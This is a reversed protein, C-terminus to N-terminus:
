RVYFEKMDDLRLLMPAGGGAAGTDIDIWTETKFARDPNGGLMETPTHGFVTFIDDYYRDAASPRNWLVDGTTYDEIDKNAEFNGIGAHTLLFDRDDISITEFMPAESLYDYIDQVADPDQRHLRRLSDLTPRAGNFIWDMMTNMRDGTLSDINEGTVEDFVFRCDLMMEEHNGLILSVNPQLMMWRLMEVGGDGNRDIVDGLVFLFDEDSFGAKKLLDIFDKLPYGHIDSTAYIM